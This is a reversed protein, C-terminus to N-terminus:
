KRGGGDKAIIFSYDLDHAFVYVWASLVFSEGLNLSADNGVNIFDNSAFEASCGYKGSTCNYKTTSTFSGNNGYKSVDIVYSSTDGLNSVNDFNMM